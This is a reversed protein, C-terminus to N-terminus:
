RESSRTLTVEFGLPPPPLEVAFVVWTSELQLVEGQVLVPLLRLLPTGERDWIM